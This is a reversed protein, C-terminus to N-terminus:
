DDKDEIILFKDGMVQKMLRHQDKKIHAIDKAIVARQTVDLAHQRILYGTGTVLAGLAIRIAWKITDDIIEKELKIM